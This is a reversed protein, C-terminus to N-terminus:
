LTLVNPFTTTETVQQDKEREGPLKIKTPTLPSLQQGQRAM